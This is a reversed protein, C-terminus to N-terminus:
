LNRRLFGAFLSVIFLVLAIVFLIQAMGTATSAIGGFGFVAAVLAIVLFMLAWYLM